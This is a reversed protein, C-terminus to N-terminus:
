ESSPQLTQTRERYHCREEPAPGRSVPSLSAPSTETEHRGDRRRRASGNATRGTIHRIM